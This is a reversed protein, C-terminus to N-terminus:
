RYHPDSVSFICPRSEPLFARIPSHVFEFPLHGARHHSHLPTPPHISPHSDCDDYYPRIPTGPAIRFAFSCPSAVTPTTTISSLFTTIVPFRSRTYSSAPHPPAQRPPSYSSGLASLSRSRVLGRGFSWPRCQTGGRGRIGLGWSREFIM